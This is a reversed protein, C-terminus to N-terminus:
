RSALGLVLDEVSRTGTPEDSTAVYKSAAGLPPMKRHTSARSEPLDGSALRHALQALNAPPQSEVPTQLLARLLKRAALILQDVEDSPLTGVSESLAEVTRASSSVNSSEGPEAVQHTVLVGLGQAYRRVSSLKPDNDYREFAAVSAQTIGFHEALAAQSIGRARRLAVLQRLLQHDADALAAALMVEPDRSWEELLENM